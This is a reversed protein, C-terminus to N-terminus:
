KRALQCSNTGPAGRCTPEPPHHTLVGSLRSTSVTRPAPPQQPLGSCELTQLGPEVSALMSNCAFPLVRGVPFVTEDPRSLRWARLDGDLVSVRASVWTAVGARSWTSSQLILRVVLPGEQAEATRRSKVWQWGAGRRNV